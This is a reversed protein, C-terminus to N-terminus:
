SYGPGLGATLRERLRVVVRSWEEASTSEAWLAARESEDGTVRDLAQIALRLDGPTARKSGQELWSRVEEPLGEPSGDVSAAVVAAAAVAINGEPLELYEDNEVATVLAQRVIEFDPAEKLEWAWDAADDNDFPGTGWSGM